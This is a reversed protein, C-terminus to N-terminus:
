LNALKKWRASLDSGESIVKKSPRTSRTSKSAYSEKITRKTKGGYNKHWYDLLGEIDKEGQKNNSFKGVKIRNELDKVRKEIEPPLQKGQQNGM